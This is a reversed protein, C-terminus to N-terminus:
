KQAPFYAEIEDALGPAEDCFQKWHEPTMASRVSRVYDRLAQDNRKGVEEAAAYLPEAFKEKEDQPAKAYAAFLEQLRKHDERPVSMPPSRRPLRGFKDAEEPALKVKQRFPGALIGEVSRAVQQRAVLASGHLTYNPFESPKDDFFSVTGGNIFNTTRDHLVTVKQPSQEIHPLRPRIAGPKAPDTSFRYFCGDKQSIAALPAHASGYYFVHSWVPEGNCVLGRGLNTVAGTTLDARYWEQGALYGQGGVDILGTFASVGPRLIYADTPIDWLGQTKPQTQVSVLARITFVLWHDGHIIPAERMHLAIGRSSARSANHASWTLKQPDIRLFQTGISYNFGAWVATLNGGATEGVVWQPAMAAHASGTRIRPWEAPLDTDTMIRQVDLRAGSPQEHLTLLRCWGSQPPEPQTKQSAAVQENGGFALVRDNGIPYLLIDGTVPDLAAGGGNVRVESGDFNLIRVGGLLSSIWIHKGDSIVDSFEEEEQRLVEVLTKPDSMLAVADRWWVVDLKDNLKRARPERMAEARNVGRRALRDLPVKGGKAEQYTVAIADWSVSGLPKGDDPTLHPLAAETDYIFLNGPHDDWLGFPGSGVAARKGDSSIAVMRSHARGLKALPRWLEDPSSTDMLYAQNEDFFHRSYALVARTGDASFSVTRFDAFEPTPALTKGTEVNWTRAIASNAPRTFFVGFAFRGDQSLGLRTSYINRPLDTLERVARRQDLDVVQVTARGANGTRYAAFRGNASICFGNLSMGEESRYAPKEDNVNWIIYGAPGGAVLEGNSRFALATIGKPHPELLAVVDGTEIDCVRVAKDKGGVAVRKGDPSIALQAVDAPAFSYERLLKGTSADWLRAVQDAGVSIIRKNDPLFQLATIAKTHARVSVSPLSWATDISRISASPATSPATAPAAAQTDAAAAALFVLALMLGQLRIQSM